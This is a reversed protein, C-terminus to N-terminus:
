PAATDSTHTSRMPQPKEYTLSRWAWELPGFRFRHLWWNSLPIQAAYIVLTMLLGLGPGIQGYLGLGYGNFVLTCILSQMLYNTLAMRGVAGLPQLRRRWVTKQSLLVLGAAYFLCLAPAGVASGAVLILAAWTPDTPSIFEAGIVAILNGPLGLALGWIAIRRVFPRHAAVNHLVGRRTAYLGILFMGLIGGYMFLVTFVLAFPYERIRFALAQRYSGEGYARRSAEIWENMGAMEDEDPQSMAATTPATAPASAPLTAPVTTPTEALDEGLRALGIFGAIILIVVLLCPIAWAILTAPKRKRFALLVFGLLAYHILIDGNWLFVVHCFGILLLVVLRRAYLRVFRGGRAEVREMQVAMGFGFLLSFLSYFKGACFLNIFWEAGRDILGPWPHLDLFYLLFPNAFFLMNVALVGFLAFGRLIDVVEIREAATIPTPKAPRATVTDDRQSPEITM